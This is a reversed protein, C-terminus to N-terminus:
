NRSESVPIWTVAQGGATLGLVRCQERWIEGVLDHLLQDIETAALPPALSTAVQLNKIRLKMVPEHIAEYLAQSKENTM